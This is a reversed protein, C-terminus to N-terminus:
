FALHMFCFLALQPSLGSLERNVKHSDCNVNERKLHEISKNNPHTSMVLQCTGLSKAQEGYSKWAMPLSTLVHVLDCIYHQCQMPLKVRQVM